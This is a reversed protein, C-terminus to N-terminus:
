SSMTLLESTDLMADVSNALIFFSGLSGRKSFTLFIPKAITVTARFSSLFLIKGGALLHSNAIISSLDGLANAIGPPFIPKLTPM